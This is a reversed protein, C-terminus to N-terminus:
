SGNERDTEIKMIAQRSGIDHRVLGSGWLRVRGSGGEHEAARCDMLSKIM